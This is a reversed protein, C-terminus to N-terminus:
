TPPWGDKELGPNESQLRLCLPSQPRTDSVPQQGMVVGEGEVERKASLGGYGSQALRRRLRLKFSHIERNTKL